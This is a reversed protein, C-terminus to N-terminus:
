PLQVVKNPDFELNRSGSPNLYSELKFFHDGGAIMKFRIRAYRGDAVKVFYERSAQPSWDEATQSMVIEDSSKYGETPAEFDFQDKREILGGNPVSILCRWDYRGKPNPRKDQTWAEVRLNGEVSPNGTALDIEIPTGNRQIKYTRSSLQVLPETEGVKQLFFIAPNRKTPPERFYGDPGTGYAFAANSKGDIFYYGEKRVNVSLRAGKIGTISFLGREDSKGSYSSGPEMFTDLASYGINAYPVLDGNQDVVKGYFTIPTTMIAQVREAVAKRREEVPQVAAPTASTQPPPSPSSVSPQLAASRTQRPSSPRLLWGLSVALAVLSGIIFIRKRNM